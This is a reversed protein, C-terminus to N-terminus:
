LTQPHVGVLKHVPVQNVHTRGAVILSDVEVSLSEQVFVNVAVSLGDKRQQRTLSPVHKRLVCVPELLRDKKALGVICCVVLYWKSSNCHM